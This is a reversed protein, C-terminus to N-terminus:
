AREVLRRADWAIFRSTRPRRWWAADRPFEARLRRVVEAHVEPPLPAGGVMEAAWRAFREESPEGDPPPGTVVRVETPRAIASLEEVSHWFRPGREPLTYGLEAAIERYRGRRERWADSPARDFWRPLEMVVRRRAVRGLERLVERPDPILQLVHAMFAADVSRDAIPLRLVNARVLASLGKNRARGMMGLSLDVGVIEFGRGRLPVAFRGTGVGADLVTRCGRLLQVLTALEEGSPPRRTEDYVPAIRDFEVEETM